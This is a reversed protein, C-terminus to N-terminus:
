PHRRYIYKKIGHDMEYIFWIHPECGLEVRAFARAMEEGQNTVIEAQEGDASGICEILVTRSKIHLLRDQSAMAQM